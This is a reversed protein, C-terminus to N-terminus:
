YYMKQRVCLNVGIVVISWPGMICLGICFSKVDKILHQTGGCNNLYCIHSGGCHLDKRTNKCALNIENEGLEM